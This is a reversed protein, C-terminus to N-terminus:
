SEDSKKLQINLHTEQGSKITVRKTKIAFGPANFGIGYEGTSPVSLNFAGNEDTLMAIDPLPVPSDTFYIQADAVPQGDNDRVVGFIQHPKEVTM